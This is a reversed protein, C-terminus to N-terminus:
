IGDESKVFAVTRRVNELMYDESEEARALIADPGVAIVIEEAIGDAGRAYVIALAILVGDLIEATTLDPM